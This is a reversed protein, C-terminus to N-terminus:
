TMDLEQNYMCPLLLLSSYTSFYLSEIFDLLVFLVLCRHLNCGLRWVTRDFCEWRSTHITERGSERNRKWGKTWGGVESVRPRSDLFLCRQLDRDLSVESLSVPNPQSMM